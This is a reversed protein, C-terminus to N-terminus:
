NKVSNPDAFTGILAKRCAEAVSDGPTAPRNALAFKKGECGAVAQPHLLRLLHPLDNRNAILIVCGASSWLSALQKDTAIFSAAADPSDGFPGLEGRYGILVERRGTYFPLAQIQHHYSALVCGPGLLPRISEALEGYSYLPAADSRAKMLAAMMLVAGLAIAALALYPRPPRLTLLAVATGISLAIAAAALDIRVALPLHDKLLFAALVVGIAILINLLLLGILHAEFRESSRTVRALGLGATIALPTFAPLIYEGLKSRPISFFIFVIGFWLLLLRQASRKRKATAEIEDQDALYDMVGAPVFYFWPWSGGIVVPIFFWLGWGHEDNALYRHLHEHIIFFTLFGPNRLAAIVFWPLGLVLYVIACSLWPMKLSDRARGEVILWALAIAGTLVLAVPGKALTGLALAAAALLMWGRGKGRNFSPATAAAYFCALAATFFFALGPDPTAFRAFVLFLPSLALALAALIGATIGFMAEGLAATIGVQAASFSAAQVRAAFENTGFLKLSAATLWYVLPPKEFYRVWDNRPTIYDGSILMERAVEAYRGEDPEWLMPHGLGIFYIIAAAIACLAARHGRKLRM